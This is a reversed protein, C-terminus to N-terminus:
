NNNEIVSAEEVQLVENTNADYVLGVVNMNEPKWSKDLKYPKSVIETDELSSIEVEEGWYNPVEDKDGIAGRLVHNHEYDEIYVKGSKQYDIIKGETLLLLLKTENEMQATSKRLISTVSLISDVANYDTKMSLSIYTPMQFANSVMSSWEQQFGTSVKGSRNITAAPYGRSDGDSYFKNWYANGAETRFKSGSSFIGAHIGVVIVKHNYSEQLRKAEAAGEPCNQCEQGTFEELLINRDSTPPEYDLFRENEDISNCACLVLIISYIYLKNKLM